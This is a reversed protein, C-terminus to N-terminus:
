RIKIFYNGEGGYTGKGLKEKFKKKLEDLNLEKDILRLAKLAQRRRKLTTSDIKEDKSLCDFGFKRISDNVQIKISTYTGDLCNKNDGYKKICDEIEEMSSMGPLFVCNVVNLSDLGIKYLEFLLKKAIQEKIEIQESITKTTKGYKTIYNVVEGYFVDSKKLLMIKQSGKYDIEYKRMKKDLFNLQAILSTKLFFLIIFLIAKM